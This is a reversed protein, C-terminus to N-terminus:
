SAVCCVDRATPVQLAATTACGVLLLALLEAVARCFGVIAGDGEWGVAREDRSWCASFLHACSGLCVHAQDDAAGHQAAARWLVDGCVGWRSIGRIVTTCLVKNVILRCTCPVPVGLVCICPHCSRQCCRMVCSISRGPAPVYRLLARICWICM